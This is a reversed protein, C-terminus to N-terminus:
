EVYFSAGSIGHIIWHPKVPASFDSKKLALGIYYSQNDVFIYRECNPDIQIRLIFAKKAADLPTVTFGKPAEVEAVDIGSSGRWLLRPLVSKTRSSCGLCLVAVMSLILSHKM